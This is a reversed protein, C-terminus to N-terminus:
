GAAGGAEAGGAAGAPGPAAAGGNTGCLVLWHAGATEAAKLTALAYERNARFGDFFHEADFLVEEMRPRLWASPDHILAANEALTTELAGTVHFDWSKGVITAVPAGSELIAQMNPD